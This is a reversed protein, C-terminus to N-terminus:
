GNEARGALGPLVDRVRALRCRDQGEAVAREFSAYGFGVDMHGWGDVQFAGRTPLAAVVQLNLKKGAATYHLGDFSRGAHSWGFPGILRQSVRDRKLVALTADKPTIEAGDSFEFRGLRLSQGEHGFLGKLRVYGQKPFVMFANRQRDNASYYNAGLGMAGQAGPAIADDPLGLLFPAALEVQWDVRKASQAFSLRFINGSYAYSNNGAGEFWDWAELRTRFSGSVTVGGLKVPQYGSQAFLSSVIFYLILM